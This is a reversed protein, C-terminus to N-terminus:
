LSKIMVTLFLIKLIGEKVRSLGIGEDAEANMAHGRQIGDEAVEIDMQFIDTGL